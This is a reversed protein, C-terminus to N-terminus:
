PRRRRAAVFLNSPFLRRGVFPVAGAFGYLVRKAFRAVASGGFASGLRQRRLERRAREAATEHIWVRRRATVELGARDFLALAEALGYRRLHGSVDDPGYTRSRNLWNDELPLNVLVRDGLMAADRLFGADDGVHELVDSLVVADFRGISSRMARFDGARFEIEPHRTQAAAVNAASIDIGLKRGGPAVPLADILEGTACGIEVASLLRDGDRLLAMLNPVKFLRVELDIQAQELSGDARRAVYDPHGDYLASFDIREFDAAEREAAM